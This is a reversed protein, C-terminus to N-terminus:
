FGIGIGVGGWSSGGSGVGVGISPTVRPGSREGAPAEWLKLRESIVVPYRYPAEGVQGERFGKFRGRVEILRGAAYEQPELFGSKDVLFRGQAPQDVLPEGDGSLPLSLVEVLTRDALNDVRVIQGGWHIEDAPSVGRVVDKPTPGTDVPQPNSMCGGLLAALIVTTIRLKM